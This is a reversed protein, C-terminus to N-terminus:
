AHATQELFAEIFRLGNMHSKEPHFQAGFINGSEVVATFPQGYVSTAAQAATDQTEVFYSHAFYFDADDPVKALIGDTRIRQISNWGMHPVKLPPDQGQQPFRRAVGKLWGLGPGGGEESAEHLM